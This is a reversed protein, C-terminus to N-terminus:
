QRADCQRRNGTHDPMGQVEVVKGAEVGVMLGCDVWRYLCTAKHWQVSMNAKKEQRRRGVHEDFGDAWQQFEEKEAEAGSVVYAFSEEVAGKVGAEIAQIEALALAHFDGASVLRSRIPAPALLCAM